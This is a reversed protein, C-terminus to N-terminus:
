YSLSAFASRPTTLQLKALLEKLESERREALRRENVAALLRQEVARVSGAAFFRTYAWGWIASMIKLVLSCVMWAASVVVLRHSSAPVLFLSISVSIARM